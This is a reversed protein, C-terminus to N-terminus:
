PCRNCSSNNNKGKARVDMVMVIPDITSNRVAKAIADSPDSVAVNTIVRLYLKDETAKEFSVIISNV